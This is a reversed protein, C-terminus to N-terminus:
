GAPATLFTEDREITVAAKKVEYWDAFARARIEDLQRGEPTREEEKAVYFLYSGDDEITVVESTKGIAAAFIATGLDKELQGRAIWGLEGGRSAEQGESVDLALKAFDAGGDAQTKIKALDPSHSIM